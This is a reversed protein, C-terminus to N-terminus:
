KPIKVYTNSDVRSLIREYDLGTMIRIEPIIGSVGGNDNEVNRM